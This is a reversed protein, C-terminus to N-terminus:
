NVRKSGPTELEEVGEPLKGTGARQYYAAAARLANLYASATANKPAYISVIFAQAGSQLAFSVLDAEEYPETSVDLLKWVSTETM